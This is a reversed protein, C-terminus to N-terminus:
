LGNEVLAKCYEALKDIKKCFEEKEKVNPREIVGLWLMRNVAESRTIGDRDMMMQIRQM